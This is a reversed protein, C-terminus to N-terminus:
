KINNFNKELLEIYNECKNIYMFLEKKQESNFLSGTEKLIKVITKVRELKITNGLIQPHFDIIDKLAKSSCCLHYELENLCLEYNYTNEKKENVLLKIEDYLQIACKANPVIYEDFKTCWDYDKYDVLRKSKNKFIMIILFVISCFLIVVTAINIWIFAKNSIEDKLVTLIISIINAFFGIVLTVITITNNDVKDYLRKIQKTIHYIGVDNKM